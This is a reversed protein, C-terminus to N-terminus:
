AHILAIVFDVKIVGFYNFHNQPVRRVNKLRCCKLLIDLGITTIETIAAKNM